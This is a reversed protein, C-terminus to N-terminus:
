YMAGESYNTRLVQIQKICPMNLTTPEGFDAVEEYARLESNNACACVCVCLRVCASLYVCARVCACARARVCVRVCACVCVCACACM